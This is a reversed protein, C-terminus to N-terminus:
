DPRTIRGPGFHALALGSALPAFEMAKLHGAKDADGLLKPPHGLRDGSSLGPILLASHVGTGLIDRV